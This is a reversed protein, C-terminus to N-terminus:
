ENGINIGTDVLVVTDLADVDQSRTFDRKSKFLIVTSELIVYLTSDIM